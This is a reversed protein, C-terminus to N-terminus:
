GRGVVMLVEVLATGALASVIRTHILVSRGRWPCLWAGCTM